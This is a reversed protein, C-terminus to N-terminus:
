VLHVKRNAFYVKIKVSDLNMGFHDMQHSKESSGKGVKRVLGINGIWKSIKKVARAADKRSATRGSKCSAIMFDGIYPFVKYGLTERLHGVYGRMIKTFWM